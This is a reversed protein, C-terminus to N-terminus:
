RKATPLRATVELAARELLAREAWEAISRQVPPRETPASGALLANALPFVAPCQPVFDFAAYPEALAERVDGLAQLLGKLAVADGGNAHRLALHRHAEDPMRRLLGGAEIGSALAAATVNSAASFREGLLTSWDTIVWWLLDLEERDAAANARLAELASSTATDIAKAVAAPEYAEPLAIKAIEVNHRRRTMTAATLVHARALELLELRLAEIKAEKRPKQFGLASWLAIALVDVTLVNPSSNRKTGLADIAGLAACVTMQLQQGDAIFAKATKRISAEVDASLTASLKKEDGLAIALDSAYAMTTGVAVGKTFKGALDKIASTRKTVLDDAPTADFIRVHTAISSM